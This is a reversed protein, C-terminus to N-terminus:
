AAKAATRIAWAHSEHNMRAAAAEPSLWLLEHDTESPATRTDDVIARLFVSPKEFCINEPASYAFQVAKGLVRATLVQLGCEELVERRVAEEPSEASEIGGGPLFYGEPTNVM